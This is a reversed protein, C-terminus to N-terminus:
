LEASITYTVTIEKSQLFTADDQKAYRYTVIYGDTDGTGSWCTKIGTIVDVDATTLQKEGATEGGNAALPEFTSPRELGVYLETGSNLLSESIKASIKRTKGSEVLSSIRLRTLNNMTQDLIAAGAVTAGTLSMSIGTGTASPTTNVVALLASGDVNLNIDQTATTASPGVQVQAYASVSAFSLATFAFIRFFTNTKMDM